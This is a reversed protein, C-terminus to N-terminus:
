STKLAGEKTDLEYGVQCHSVGCILLKGLDPPRPLSVRVTVLWLIHIETLM